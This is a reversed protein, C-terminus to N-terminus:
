GKGIHFHKGSSDSCSHSSINILDATKYEVKGGTKQSIITQVKQRMGESNVFASGLYHFALLLVLLFGTFGALGIYIKKQRTM